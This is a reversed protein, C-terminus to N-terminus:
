GSTTTEEGRANLVVRVKELYATKHPGTAVIVLPGYTMHTVDPHSQELKAAAADVSSKSDYQHLSMVDPSTESGNCDPKVAFARTAILGDQSVISGATQKSVESCAELGAQKLTTQAPDYNASGPDSSSDDGGGCGGLTLVVAVAAICLGARRAM